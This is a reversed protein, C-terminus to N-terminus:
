LFHKIYVVSKRLFHIAPLVSKPSFRKALLISPTNKLRKRYFISRSRRETSKTICIHWHSAGQVGRIEMPVENSGSQFRGIPYAYSLYPIARRAIDMVGFTIRTITSLSNTGAVPKASAVTGRAGATQKARPPPGGFLRLQDYGRRIQRTDCCSVSAHERRKNLGRRNGASCHAGRPM